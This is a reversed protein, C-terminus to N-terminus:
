TEWIRCNCYWKGQYERPVIDCVPCIIPRSMPVPEALFPQITPPLIEIAGQLATVQIVWFLDDM